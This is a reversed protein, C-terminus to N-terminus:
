FFCDIQKLRRRMSREWSSLTDGGQEKAHHVRCCSSEVFRAVVLYRESRLAHGITYIFSDMLQNLHTLEIELLTDPIQLRKKALKTFTNLIEHSSNRKTSTITSVVDKSWNRSHYQLQFSLHVQQKLHLNLKIELLTPTQLRIKPQRLRQSERTLPQQLHVVELELLEPIQLRQMTLYTSLTSPKTQSSPKTLTSTSVVDKLNQLM